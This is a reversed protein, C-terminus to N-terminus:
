VNTAIYYKIAFMPTGVLVDLIDIEHSFIKPHNVIQFSSIFLIGYEVLDKAAFNITSCRLTYHFIKQNLKSQVVQLVPLTLAFNGEKQVPHTFLLGKSSALFMLRMQQMLRHCNQINQYLMTIYFGLLRLDIRATDRTSGQWERCTNTVLMIDVAIKTLGCM